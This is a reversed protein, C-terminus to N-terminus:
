RFRYIRGEALSLYIWGEPSIVVDAPHYPFIGFGNLSLRVLNDQVEPRPSTPAVRRLVRTPDGSPLFEVVELSYGAPEPLNWSGAMAVILFGKYFPFGDGTYFALGSPSSQYPFRITPRQTADCFDDTPVTVDPYASGSDHCYPFGYHAGPEVRNLEDAILMAAPLMGAAEEVPRATDLVWLDGTEPHWAFDAPSRFGSAVIQEDSGDLAYSIVAGRRKDGRQEDAPDCTDCAAGTSIYLRGDPGIGIGGSWIGTDRPLDDVLVTHTEFFGDGDADDLRLVGGVSNVYLSDGDLAIASPLTLGEAALVPDDLFQDGDADPMAWIEGRATRAMYLTGDPAFALGMLDPVAEPPAVQDYVVEACTTNLDVYPLWFVPECPPGEVIMPTSRAPSDPDSGPPSEADDGCAVLLLILVLIVALIGPLQWSRTM